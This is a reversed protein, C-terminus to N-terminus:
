VDLYQTLIKGIKGQILNKDNQLNTKKALLQFLALKACKLNLPHTEIFTLREM